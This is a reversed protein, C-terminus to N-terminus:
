VSCSQGAPFKTNRQVHIKLKIKFYLYCFLMLLMGAVALFFCIKLFLSLISDGTHSFYRLLMLGIYGTYGVSDVVYMLFSVTARERTIAILREFIVAHVGVYPLYVGLGILVM